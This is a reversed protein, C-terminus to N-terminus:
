LMRLICGAIYAIGALPKAVSGSGFIILRPKPKVIDILVTLAASREEIKVSM